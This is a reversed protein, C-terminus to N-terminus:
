AKFNAQMLVVTDEKMKKFRKFMMTWLDTQRIVKYSNADIKAIKEKLSLAADSDPVLYEIQQGGKTGVNVKGLTTIKNEYICEITNDSVRKLKCQTNM